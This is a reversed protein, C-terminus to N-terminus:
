ARSAIDRQFESCEGSFFFFLCSIIFMAWIDRIAWTDPSLGGVRPHRQCTCAAPFFYFNSQHNKQDQKADLHTRVGRSPAGLGIKPMVFVWTYLQIHEVSNTARVLEQLSPRSPQFRWQQSSEPKQDAKACGHNAAGEGNRADNAWQTTNNDTDASATSGPTAAAATTPGKIDADLAEAGPIASRTGHSGDKGM